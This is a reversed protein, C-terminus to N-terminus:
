VKTLRLRVEEALRNLAGNGQVMATCGSKPHSISGRVVDPAESWLNILLIAPDSALGFGEDAPAASASVARDAAIPELRVVISLPATEALRM